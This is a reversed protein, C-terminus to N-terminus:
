CYHQRDTCYSFFFFFVVCSAVNRFEELIAPSYILDRKSEQINLVVILKM